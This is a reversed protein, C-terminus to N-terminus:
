RTSTPRTATACRMGRGIASHSILPMPANPSIIAWGWDETFGIGKLTEIEGSVGLVRTDVRRRDLVKTSPIIVNMTAMTDFGILAARESPLGRKGGLLAAMITQDVVRGGRM